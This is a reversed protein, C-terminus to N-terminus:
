ASPTLPLAPLMFPSKGLSRNTHKWQRIRMTEAFQLKSDLNAGGQFSSEAGSMPSASKDRSPNTLQSQEAMRTNIIPEDTPM